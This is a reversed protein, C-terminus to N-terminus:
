VGCRYERGPPDEVQFEGKDDVDYTGVNRVLAWIVKVDGEHRGGSPGYAPTKWAQGLGVVGGPKSSM